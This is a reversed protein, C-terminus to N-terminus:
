TKNSGRIQCALIHSANAPTYFFFNVRLPHLKFSVIKLDANPIKKIYKKMKM